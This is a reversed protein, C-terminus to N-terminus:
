VGCAAFSRPGFGHGHVCSLVTSHPSVACRMYAVGRGQKYTAPTVRGFFLEPNAAALANQMNSAATAWGRLSLAFRLSLSVIVLLTYAAVAASALVRPALPSCSSCLVFRRLFQNLLLELKPSRARHISDYTSHKQLKCAYEYYMKITILM